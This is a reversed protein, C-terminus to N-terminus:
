RGHAPVHAIKSVSSPQFQTEDEKPSLKGRGYTEGVTAPVRSDRQGLNNGTKDRADDETSTMGSDSPRTNAFRQESTSLM